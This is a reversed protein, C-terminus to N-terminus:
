NKEKELFERMAVTAYSGSPLEFRFTNGVFSFDKLEALWRRKTGKSSIEPISKINFDEKRIEFKELLVQENETLETEYGILNGEGDLSENNQIREALIINFLHSQFAHLFLLLINRPLKRFANIYDNPNKELHVLMSRELKLHPPFAKLASAYDRTRKLEERALSAESHKEGESDCLFMMAADEFRGKVLKEGVWHTNRRTSGFRQEGFYNPIKGDLETYIENAKDETGSESDRVTITFRNGLLQGMRVKDNAYWAGNIQIDKIRLALLQEKKIAFGSCLQTSTSVKDKNGAFDFRKFSIRLKKAVAKIAANSTWNTKQLIFHLFKGEGEREIKQDIGLVTGDTTIEEVRFDEPSQQISGGIGPTQSLYSLNM